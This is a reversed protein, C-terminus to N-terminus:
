KPVKILKNHLKNFAIIHFRIPKPNRRRNGKDRIYASQIYLNLAGKKQGKTISFYVEYNKKEGSETIIEVIFFDDHGTHLCKKKSINEIINPLKKSLEYRKYCFIRSERNDSYILDLDEENELKKRSFCHLSFSVNFPYKRQPKNQKSEQIVEMQFPHLHELSYESNNHRFSKWHM